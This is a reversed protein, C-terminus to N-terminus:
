SGVVMMYMCQTYTNYLGYRRKVHAARFDQNQRKQSWMVKCLVQRITYVGGSLHTESSQLRLSVNLSILQICILSGKCCFSQTEKPDTDEDLPGEYNIGNNIWIYRGLTQYVCLPSTYIDKSPRCGCLSKVHTRM